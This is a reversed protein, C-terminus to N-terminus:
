LRKEGSFSTDPKREHQLYRLMLFRMGPVVRGTVCDVTISDEYGLARFLRKSKPNSPDDVTHDITLQRIADHTIIYAPSDGANAITLSDGHFVAAVITAAGGLNLAHLQSNVARLVRALREAVNNAPTQYYMDCITQVAQQSYHEGRQLGGVGDSLLFLAGYDRLVLPDDPYVYAISDQNNRRRQGRHTALAPWLRFHTM